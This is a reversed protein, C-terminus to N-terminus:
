LCHRKESYSNCKEIWTYMKHTKTSILWKLYFIVAVGYESKEGQWM